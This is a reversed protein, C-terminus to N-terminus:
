MRLLVIETKFFDQMITTVLETPCAKSFFDNVAYTFEAGDFLDNFPRVPM